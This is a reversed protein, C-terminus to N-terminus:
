LTKNQAGLKKYSSNDSSSIMIRCGKAPTTEILAYSTKLNARYLLTRLASDSIVTEEWIFQEISQFPLCSGNAEILIQLLKNEKKGLKIEQDKCFLKKSKMIM